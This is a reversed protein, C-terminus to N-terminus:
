YAYVMGMPQYPVYDVQSIMSSRGGMNNAYMSAGQVNLDEVRSYDRYVPPRGLPVRNSITDIDLYYEM